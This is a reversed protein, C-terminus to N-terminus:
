KKMIQMVRKWDERSFYHMGNRLCYIINGDPFFEEKKPIENKCVLGSIGLKEYVESAAACSLFENEPDAWLDEKASSVFLKRPALAALLFHQDFGLSNENDTYKKYNECFWYGFVDCIARITEGKNKRSLSAGSCGSCNSMAMFFREDLAGALLATKGLRSHGTVAGRSLDLVDIKQAYDMVRMAAWAWMAIKGCDTDNKRKGNPYFIKSLGNSFDNDDSTIDKYCFSLIGFGNDTIEETPQYKNPYTNEFNISVFFPVNKIGKPIVVCVPFSFTKGNKFECTLVVNQRPAKGACFRKDVSQISYTLNKPAPPIYGYEEKQLLALIEKRRIDWRDKLIKETKPLIKPIKRTELLDDLM